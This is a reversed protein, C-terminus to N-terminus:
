RLCQLHLCISCLTASRPLFLKFTLGSLVLRLCKWIKLIAIREVPFVAQWLWWYNRQNRLDVEGLMEHHGNHACVDAYRERRQLKVNEAKKRGKSHPASPPSPHAARHSWRHSGFGGGMVPTGGHPFITLFLQCSQPRCVCMKPFVWALLPVLWGWMRSILLLHLLIGWSLVIGTRVHIYWCWVDAEEAWITM